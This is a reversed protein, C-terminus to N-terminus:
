IFLIGEMEGCVDFERNQVFCYDATECDRQGINGLKM